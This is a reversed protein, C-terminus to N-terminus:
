IRTETCEIRVAVLGNLGSQKKEKKFFARSRMMGGERVKNVQTLLM